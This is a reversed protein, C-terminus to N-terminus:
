FGQELDMLLIRLKIAPDPLEDFRADISSGSHNSLPHGSRKRGNNQVPPTLHSHRSSQMLRFEFGLNSQCYYLTFQSHLSIM